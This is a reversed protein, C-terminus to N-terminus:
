KKKLREIVRWKDKEDMPMKNLIEVIADQNLDESCVYDKSRSSVRFRTTARGYEKREKEQLQSCLNYGDELADIIAVFHAEVYEPTLASEKDDIWVVFKGEGLAKSIESYKM